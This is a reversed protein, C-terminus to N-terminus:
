NQLSLLSKEEGCSGSRSHPGGLRGKLPYLPKKEPTFHDSRSPLWEGGDLALLILAAIREALTKM